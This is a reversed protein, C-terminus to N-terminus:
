RSAAPRTAQGVLRSRPADLLNSKLPGHGKGEMGGRLGRMEDTDARAIWGM